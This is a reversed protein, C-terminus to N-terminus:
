FRYNVDLDRDTDNLFYQVLSVAAISDEISVNVKVKTLRVFEALGPNDLKFRHAPVVQLGSQNQDAIELFVPEM